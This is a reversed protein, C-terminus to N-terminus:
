RGELNYTLSSIQWRGDQRRFVWLDGGPSVEDGIRTTSRATAQDGAIEIQVDGPEAYQPNGPFVVVQYRDLVADIGRWVADDKPDVPTHMADTVTSEETWLLALGDIDKAVVAESESRLLRLIAEHEDAHITPAVQRPTLATEAQPKGGQGTCAGLLFLILVATEITLRM